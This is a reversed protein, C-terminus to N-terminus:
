ITMMIMKFRLSSEPCQDRRFLFFYIADVDLSSDKKILDTKVPSQSSRTELVCLVRERRLLPMGLQLVRESTM